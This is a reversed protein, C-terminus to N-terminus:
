VVVRVSQSRCDHTEASALERGGSRRRRQSETESRGRDSSIRRQRQVRAIGTRREKVDLGFATGLDTVNMQPTGVRFGRAQPPVEAILKGNRFSTETPSVIQFEAPGEIVVRAGSYFVIQALGSQLRLWGPELPAGLRPAESAANWQADVVRNLMAVAKSTAGQTRAHALDCRGGVVALLCVCAALALVWKAKSNASARLRLPLVNEPPSTKRDCAFLDPESALRSHLELRLIYEDRAAADSRLLENLARASNTPLRVTVCAAVAEDFERSPFTFKV